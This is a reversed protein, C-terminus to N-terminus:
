FGTCYTLIPSQFRLYTGELNQNEHLPTFITQRCSSTITLKGNPNRIHAKLTNKPDNKRFRFSHLIQNKNTISTRAIYNNKPGIRHFEHFYTKSGQHEAKTQLMFCYYKETFHSAKAKKDYNKECKFISHM